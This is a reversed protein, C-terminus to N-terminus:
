PESHAYRLQLQLLRRWRWWAMLALPLTLPFLTFIAVFVAARKAPTQSWNQRRCLDVAFLLGCAGSILVYLPWGALEEVRFRYSDFVVSLLALDAGYCLLAILLDQAWLQFPGRSPQANCANPVLTTQPADSLLGILFLTIGFAGAFVFLSGTNLADEILFKVFLAPLGWWALTLGLTALFILAASYRTELRALKRTLRFYPIISAALIAAGSLIALGLWYFMAPHGFSFYAIM